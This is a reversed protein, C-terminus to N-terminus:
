FNNATNWFMPHEMKGFWFWQLSVLKSMLQCNEALAELADVFLWKPMGDIM